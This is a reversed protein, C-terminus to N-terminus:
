IAVCGTTTSGDPYPAVRDLRQVLRSFIDTPRSPDPRAIRQRKEQLLQELHKTLKVISDRQETWRRSGEPPLVMILSAINSMIRAM